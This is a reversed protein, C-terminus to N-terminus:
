HGGARLPQQRPAARDRLLRRAADESAAAQRAALVRGVRAVAPQDGLMELLLPGVDAPLVQGPSRGLM